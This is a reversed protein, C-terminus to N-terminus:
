PKEGCDWLCLFSDAGEEKKSAAQQMLTCFTKGASSGLFASARLLLFVKRLVFDDTNKNQLMMQFSQMENNHQRKM